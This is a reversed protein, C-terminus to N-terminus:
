PGRPLTTGTDWNMPDNGGCEIICMDPAHAIVDTNFRALMQASTNGSIGSNIVTHRTYKTLLAPWLQETPCIYINTHYTLSDGICVITQARFPKINKIMWYSNM